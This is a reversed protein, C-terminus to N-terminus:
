LLALNTFVNQGGEEWQSNNTQSPKSIKESLQTYTSVHTGTSIKSQYLVAFFKPHVISHFGLLLYGARQGSGFSVDMKAQTMLSVYKMNTSILLQSKLVVQM